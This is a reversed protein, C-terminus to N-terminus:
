GAVTTTVIDTIETTGDTDTDDDGGCAAAGVSLALLGALLLSTMKRKIMLHPSGGMHELRIARRM